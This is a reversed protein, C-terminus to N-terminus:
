QSSVRGDTEGRRQNGTERERECTIVTVRSVRTTVIGLNGRPASNGPLGCQARMPGRHGAEALWLVSVSINCRRPRGPAVLTMNIKILDPFQFRLLYVLWLEILTEGTSGILILFILAPVIREPSFSMITTKKNGEMLCVFLLLRCWIILHKRYIWILMSLWGPWGMLFPINWPQYNGNLNYKLLKLGTLKWRGYFILIWTPM